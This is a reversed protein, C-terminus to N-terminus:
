TAGAPGREHAADIRGEIGDLAGIPAWRAPILPGDDGCIAGFGAPTVSRSSFSRAVGLDTINPRAGYNTKHWMTTFGILRSNPHVELLEGLILLGLQEVSNRFLRVAGRDVLKLVVTTQPQRTSGQLTADVREDVSTYKADGTLRSGRSVM